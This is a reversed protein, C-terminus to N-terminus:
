KCADCIADQIHIFGQKLSDQALNLQKLDAKKDEDTGRIKMDKLKKVFQLVEKGLRENEEILDLEEKSYERDKTKKAM